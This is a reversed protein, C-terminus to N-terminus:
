YHKFCKQIKWWISFYSKKNRGTLRPVATKRAEALSRVNTAYFITFYILSLLETIYGRCKNPKQSRIKHKKATYLNLRTAIVYFDVANLTFGKKSRCEFHLSPRHKSATMKQEVFKTEASVKRRGASCCHTELLWFKDTCRAFLFHMCINM